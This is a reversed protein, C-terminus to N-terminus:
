IRAQVSGNQANRRAKAQLLSEYKINYMGNRVAEHGDPAWDSITAALWPKVRVVQDRLAKTFAAEDTGLVHYAVAGSPVREPPPHPSGAKKWKDFIEKELSATLKRKERISVIRDTEDKVRAALGGNPGSPPPLATTLSGDWISRVYWSFTDTSVFPTYSVSLGITALSPNRALLCQRHLGGVRTPTWRDDEDASSTSTEPLTALSTGDMSSWYEDCEAGFVLKGIHSPSIDTREGIAKSDVLEKRALLAEARRMIEASEQAQLKHRLTHTFPYRYGNYGTGLIVYDVGTLIKGDELEVNVKHAASDIHYARILAVDQIRRDPLSVFIPLAKHLISRWVKTKSEEPYLAALHAAIDNASNGNGVVVVKKGAYFDPGRYWKAHHIFGQALAESFNTVSHTYIPYDYWGSCLAVHSFRDVHISPKANAAEIEAPWQRSVVLWGQNKWGDYEELSPPLEWVGLVERNTRIRPRLNQSETFSVLYDQTESLTPFPESNSPPPFPPACSFSLLKPLVNGRLQPYAPSPWAPIHKEEEENSSM